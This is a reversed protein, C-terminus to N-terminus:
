KRAGRGWSYSGLLWPQAWAWFGRGKRLAKSWTGWGYPAGPGTPLVLPSGDKVPVQQSLLHSKAEGRSGESISGWRRQKGRLQLLHDHLHGCLPALSQRDAAM